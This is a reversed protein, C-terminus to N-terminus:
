ALQMTHFDDPVTELEEINAMEKFKALDLPKRKRYLIDKVKEPHAREERNFKMRVQNRTRNPILISMTEFDTGCQALVDYFRETEDASWRPSQVHKGYTRSNVKRTMGTEEVVEMAEYSVEEAPASTDVTLSDADLVIKGNVLRVQLAHSSEKLGAEQEKERKLRAEERKAAEVRKKEEEEQQERLTALEREEKSMKAKEQEAKRKREKELESEKFAKSVIGKQIDRIFYSMPKDLYDPVAPDFDIEDITLMDEVEQKQFRGKKRRGRGEVEEEEDDSPEVTPEGISIAQAKRKKASGRSAAAPTDISVGRKAKSRRRSTRPSKSSEGSLSVAISARREAAQDTASPSGSAISPISIAAGRGKGKSAASKTSPVSVDQSEHDPAPIVVPQRSVSRSTSSEAVVPSSSITPVSLPHGPLPAPMIISPRRPTSNLESSPTTQSTKKVAAAEEAPQESEPTEPPKKDSAVSSPRRAPPRRARGRVTPAFRTSNKNVSLSTLSSM